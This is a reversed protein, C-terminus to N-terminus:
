RARTSGPKAEEPKLSPLAEPDRPPTTAPDGHLTTGGGTGRDETFRPNSALRERWQAVFEDENM